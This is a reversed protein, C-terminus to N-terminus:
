SLFLLHLVIQENKNSNKEFTQKSCYIKSIKKLFSKKLDGFSIQYNLELM